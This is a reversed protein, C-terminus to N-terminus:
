IDNNKQLIVVPSRGIGVPYAIHNNLDLFLIFPGFQMVVQDEPLITACAASWWFPPSEVSMGLTETPNSKLSFRFGEIAWTGIWNKEWLSKGSSYDVPDRVCEKFHEKVHTTEFDPRNQTEINSNFRDLWSDDLTDLPITHKLNFDLNQGYNNDSSGLIKLELELKKDLNVYIYGNFVKKEWNEIRESHQLKKLSVKHLSRGDKDLFLIYGNINKATEVEKTTWPPSIMATSAVYYLPSILAYSVAQVVLSTRLAIKWKRPREKDLFYCFPSEIFVTLIVLASLIIGISFKLHNFFFFKLGEIQILDLLWLCGAGAAASIYNAAIMVLISRLKTTKLLKSVILGEIIGIVANGLVLHLMSLWLLPTGANALALSPILFM